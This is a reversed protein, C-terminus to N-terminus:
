IISIRRSLRIGCEPLDFKTVFIKLYLAAYALVGFMNGATLRLIDGEDNPVYYRLALFTLVLTFYIMTLIRSFRKSPYGILKFVMDGTFTYVVFAYYMINVCIPHFIDFDRYTFLTLLLHSVVAVISSIKMIIHTITYRREPIKTIKKRIIFVMKERVYLIFMLIFSTASLGATVVRAEPDFMTMESLFPFYSPENKNFSYHVIYALIATFYPVVIGMYNIINLHHLISYPKDDNQATSM